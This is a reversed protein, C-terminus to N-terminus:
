GSCIISSEAAKWASNCNWMSYVFSHISPTYKTMCVGPVASVSYVGHDLFVPEGLVKDYLVTM